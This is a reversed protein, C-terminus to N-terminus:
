QKEHSIIYESPTVGYYKHFNRTFYAHDQYGVMYAIEGINGAGKELLEAARKMRMTRIFESPTYDTLAKLKRYLQMKSMNLAEGFAEVGFSFDTMHEEMVERVKQIFREETSNINLSM